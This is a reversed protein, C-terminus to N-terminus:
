REPQGADHRVTPVKQDFIADEGIRIADLEEKARAVAGADEEDKGGENRDTL